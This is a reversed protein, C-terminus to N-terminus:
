NFYKNKLARIRMRGFKLFYKIPRKKIRAQVIPHYRDIIDLIMLDTVTTITEADSRVIEYPWDDTYKVKLGGCAVLHFYLLTEPTLPVKQTIYDKLNPLFSEILESSNRSFVLLQDNFGVNTPIMKGTSRNRYALVKALGYNRNGTHQCFDVGSPIYVFGERINRLNFKSYFSLDPRTIIVKDYKFNNQSEFEKMLKFVGHINYFMSFFRAPNLSFLWQNKDIFSAENNFHEFNKDHLKYSTLYSGYINELRTAVGGAIEHADNKPNIKLFGTKDLIGQHIKLPSDSSDPGFYFIDANNPVVINNLLSGATIEATRLFGYLLVAVKQDKDM